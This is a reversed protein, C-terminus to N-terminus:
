FDEKYEAEVLAIVEKKYEVAFDLGTRRLIIM